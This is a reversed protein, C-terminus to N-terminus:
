SRQPNTKVAPGFLADCHKCEHTHSDSFECTEPPMGTKTEDATLRRFENPSVRQELIKLLRDVKCGLRFCDEHQAALEARLREIEAHLPKTAADLQAQTANGPGRLREIEDAPMLLQLHFYRGRWIIRDCHDPVEHVYSLPKSPLQADSM